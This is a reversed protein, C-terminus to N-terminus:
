RGTLGSVLDLIESTIKQQRAKNYERTLDELLSEANDVATQMAITRAAHESAASDLMATFLRLCVVKPFLSSSLEERGPEFIFDSEGAEIDEPILSEVVTQQKSTSVFHNYVLLIESYEGKEWSELLRMSLSSAEPYSPNGALSSYDESQVFGSKRMAESMKRGVAVVKVNEKGYRDVVMHTERIANMNFAGCLSTNSSLAVICVRPNPFSGAAAPRHFGTSQLISGLAKEYPRMREVANQAKRLRSSAVLKMASTIKLTSRVSGIREKTERLTAM